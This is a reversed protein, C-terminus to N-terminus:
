QDFTDTILSERPKDSSIKTSLETGDEVMQEPKDSKAISEVTRDNM